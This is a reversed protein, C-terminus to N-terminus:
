EVVIVFFKMLKANKGTESYYCNLIQPKSQELFVISNFKATNLSPLITKTPTDFEIFGLLWFIYILNM